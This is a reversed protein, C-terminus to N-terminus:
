LYLLSKNSLFQDRHGFISVINYSTLRAVLAVRLQHGASYHGWKVEPKSTLMAVDVSEWPSPLQSSFYRLESFCSKVNFFNACLPLINNNWSLSWKDRRLILHHNCPCCYKKLKWMLSGLSHSMWPLSLTLSNKNGQKSKRMCALLVM